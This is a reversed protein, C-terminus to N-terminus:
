VLRCGPKMKLIDLQEHSSKEVQPVDTIRYQEDLVVDFKDGGRIPNDIETRFTAVPTATDHHLARGLHNGVACFAM